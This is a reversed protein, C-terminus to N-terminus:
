EARSFTVSVVEEEALAASVKGSVTYLGKKPGAFEAAKDGITAKLPRYGPPVLFRQRFPGARAPLFCLTSRENDWWCLAGAPLGVPAPRYPVALFRIAGEPLV